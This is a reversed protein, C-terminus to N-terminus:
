GNSGGFGLPQKKDSMEGRIAMWMETVKLINEVDGNQLAIVTASDLVQIAHNMLIIRDDISDKQIPKYEITYDFEEEKKFIGTFRSWATKLRYM